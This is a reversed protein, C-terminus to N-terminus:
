EQPTEPESDSSNFLLDNLKKNEAVLEDIRKNLEEIRGEQKSIESKCGNLINAVESLKVSGTPISMMSTSQLQHIIENIRRDYANLFMNKGM